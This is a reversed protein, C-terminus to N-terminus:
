ISQAVCLYIEGDTYQVFTFGSDLVLKCIQSQMRHFWLWIVNGDKEKWTNVHNHCLYSLNQWFLDHSEYQFRTNAVVCDQLQSYSIGICTVHSTNALHHLCSGICRWITLIEVLSFSPHLCIYRVLLVLDWVYLCVSGFCLIRTKSLQM